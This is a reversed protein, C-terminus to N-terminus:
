TLGTEDNTYGDTEMTNGGETDSQAETGKPEPVNTDAATDAHDPTSGDSRGSSSDGSSVTGGARIKQSEDIVNDNQDVYQSDSNILYGESDVLHGESNRRDGNEDYYYTDTDEEEDPEGSDEDDATPKQDGTPNSYD